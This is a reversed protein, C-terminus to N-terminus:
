DSPEQTSGPMGGAAGEASVAEATEASWTSRDQVSLALSSAPNPISRLSPVVAVNVSSAVTGALTVVYWLPL